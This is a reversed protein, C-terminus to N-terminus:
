NSQQQAILFRANKQLLHLTRPVTHAASKANSKHGSGIRTLYGDRSSHCQSKSAGLAELLSRLAVADSAMTKYVVVVASLRILAEGQNV